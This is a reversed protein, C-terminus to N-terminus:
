ATAQLASPEKMAVPSSVARIQIWLARVPPFTRSYRVWVLPM